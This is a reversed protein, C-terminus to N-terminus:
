TTRFQNPIRIHETAEQVPYVQYSYRDIAELSESIGDLSALAVGGEISSEQVGDGILLIILCCKVRLSVSGFGFPGLVELAPHSVLRECIPELRAIGGGASRGLLLYITDGLLDDIDLKLHASGHTNSDFGVPVIETPPTVHIQVKWPINRLDLNPYQVHSLKRLYLM